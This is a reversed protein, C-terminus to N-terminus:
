LLSAKLNIQPLCDEAKLIERSTIKERRWIGREYECNSLIIEGKLGNFVDANIKQNDEQASSITDHKVV